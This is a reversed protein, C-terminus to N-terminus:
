QQDLALNLLLASDTPLEASWPRGAWPGGGDWKYSKICSGEAPLLVHVYFQNARYNQYSEISQFERRSLLKPTCCSCMIHLDACLTGCWTEWGGALQRVRSSVYGLPAPPLLAPVFDGRLVAAICEYQVVDQAVNALLTKDAFCTTLFIQM